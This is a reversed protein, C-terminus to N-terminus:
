AVASSQSALAEGLVKRVVREIEVPETEGATAAANGERSAVGERQRALFAILAARAQSPLGRIAWKIPNLNSLQNVWRNFSRPGGKAARVAEAYLKRIARLARIIPHNPGIPRPPFILREGEARAEEASGWRSTQM